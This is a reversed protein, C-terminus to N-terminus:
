AVAKSNFHQLAFFLYCASTFILSFVLSISALFSGLGVSLWDSTDSLRASDTSSFVIHLAAHPSIALPPILLLLPFLSVYRLNPPLKRYSKAGNGSPPGPHPPETGPAGHSAPLTVTDPWPRRKCITASDVSAPSLALTLSPPRLM